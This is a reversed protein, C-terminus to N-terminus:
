IKSAFPFELISLLRFFFLDVFCLFSFDAAAGVTATFEYVQFLVLLIFDVDRFHLRDDGPIHHCTTTTRFAAFLM